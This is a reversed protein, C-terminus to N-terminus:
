FTKNVMSYCCEVSLFSHFSSLFTLPVGIDNDLIGIAVSLSLTVLVYLVGTRLDDYPTKSLFECIM